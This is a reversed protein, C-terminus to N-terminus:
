GKLQLDPVQLGVNGALEVMELLDWVSQLRYEDVPAEM